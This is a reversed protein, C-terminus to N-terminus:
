IGLYCQCCRSRNASRYHRIYNEIFCANEKSNNIIRRNFTIWAFPVIRSFRRWRPNSSKSLHGAVIGALYFTQWQCIARTVRLRITQVRPQIRHLTFCKERKKEKESQLYFRNITWPVDHLNRTSRKKGREFIIRAM